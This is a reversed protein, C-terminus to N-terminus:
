FLCVEVDKNLYIGFPHKQDTPMEGELLLNYVWAEEMKPEWTELDGPM